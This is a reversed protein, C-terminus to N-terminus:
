NQIKRLKKGSKEMIKCTNCQGCEYPIKNHWVPRRCTWTAAFLEKPLYNIEDIKPILDLCFARPPELPSSTASLANLVHNFHAIDTFIEHDREELCYGTGWRDIGYGRNKYFSQHVVGVEFAVAIDDMGFNEFRRRDIASETYLFKRTHKQCYDVIKRCAEAEALHRNEPNIFHIHHAIIEDDSERLFKYLMYTSDVGGSLTIITVQKRKEIISNGNKDYKRILLNYKTNIDERYLFNNCSETNTINWGIKGDNQIPLPQTKNTINYAFIFDNDYQYDCGDIKGVQSFYEKCKKMLDGHYNKDTIKTEIIEDNHLLYSVQQYKNDKDIATNKQLLIFEQSDCLIVQQHSIISQQYNTRPAYELVLVGNEQLLKQYQQIKFDINEINELYDAFLIIVAYQKNATIQEAINYEKLGNMLSKIILNEGYQCLIDIKETGLFQKLLVCLSQEFYNNSLDRNQHKYYVLDNIYNKM